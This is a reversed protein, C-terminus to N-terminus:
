AGLVTGQTLTSAALWAGFGDPARVTIAGPLHPMNLLTDKTVKSIDAGAGPAAALASNDGLGTGLAPARALFLM